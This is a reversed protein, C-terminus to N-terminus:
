ASEGEPEFTLTYAKGQEFHHAVAGKVTMRLDLHPTSNSWESNCGQAYDACFGITAYSYEGVGYESKFNCVVKATIAM